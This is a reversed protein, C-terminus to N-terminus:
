PKVTLSIEDSNEVIKQLGDESIGDYVPRFGGGILTAIQYSIKGSCGCDGAISIVYFECDQTSRQGQTADKSHGFYLVKEYIGFKPKILEAQLLFLRHRAIPFQLAGGLWYTVVLFSIQRFSKM